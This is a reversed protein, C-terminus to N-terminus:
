IIMYIIIPWIMFMFTYFWRGCNQAKKNEWDLSQVLYSLLLVSRGRQYVTSRCTHITQPCARAGGPKPNCADNKKSTLLDKRITSNSVSSCLYLRNSCKSSLCSVSCQLHSSSLVFRSICKSVACCMQINPQHHSGGFCAM